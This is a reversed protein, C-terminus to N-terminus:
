LIDKFFSDGLYNIAQELNNINAADLKDSLANLHKFREEYIALFEKKLNSKNFNSPIRMPPIYEKPFLHVHKAWIIQHLEINTCSESLLGLAMKVKMFDIKTPDVINTKMLNEFAKLGDQYKIVSLNSFITAQYETPNAYAKSDLGHKRKDVFVAKSFDFTVDPEAQAKTDLLENKNFVNVKVGEKQLQLFNTPTNYKILNKVKNTLPSPFDYYINELPPVKSMIKGSLAHKNRTGELTQIKTYFDWHNAVLVMKDYINRVGLYTLDNWRKM